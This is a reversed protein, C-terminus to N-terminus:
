KVLANFFKYVPATIICMLVILIIDAEIRHLSPPLIVVSLLAVTLFSVLLSFFFITARQLHTRSNSSGGHVSTPNAPTTEDAAEPLGSDNQDSELNRGGVIKAGLGIIFLVIWYILKIGLPVLMILLVVSIVTHLSAGSFLLVIISVVFVIALLDVVPSHFGRMKRKCQVTKM